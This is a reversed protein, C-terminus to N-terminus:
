VFSNSEEQTSTTDKSHIVAHTLDRRQMVISDYCLDVQGKIPKANSLYAVEVVDRAVM